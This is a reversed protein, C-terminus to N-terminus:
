TLLLVLVSVTSVVCMYQEKQKNCTEYKVQHKHNFSHTPTRQPITHSDTLLSVVAATNSHQGDHLHCWM